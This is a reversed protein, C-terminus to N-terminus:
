KRKTHKINPFAEYKWEYLAAKDYLHNIVDIMDNTFGKIEEKSMVAKEATVGIRIYEGYSLFM